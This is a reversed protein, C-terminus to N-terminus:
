YQKTLHQQVASLRDELIALEDPDTTDMDLVEIDTEGPPASGYVATVMGGEVVIVTKDMSM